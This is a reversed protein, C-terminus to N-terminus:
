DGKGDGMMALARAKTPHGEPISKLFAALSAKRRAKAEAVTEGAGKNGRGSDGRMKEIERNEWAKAISLVDADFALDALAGPTENLMKLWEHPMFKPFESCVAYLTVCLGESEFYGGSPKPM